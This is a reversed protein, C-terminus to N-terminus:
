VLDHIFAPTRTGSGAARVVSPVRRGLQSGGMGAVLVLLQRAFGRLATGDRGGRERPMVTDSTRAGM